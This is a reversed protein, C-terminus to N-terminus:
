ILREADANREFGDLGAGEILVVGPKAGKEFRGLDSWGFYEAGNVTAWTLLDAVPIEPAHRHITKLEELVSLTDNSALSDTGVVLKCGNKWLMSIDPLTNEIYLNAKPCLCFSIRNFHGASKLMDIDGQSTFTNHVLMLRSKSPFYHQVYEISSMGHPKDLFSLFGRRQFFNVLQGSLSYFMENESETEQSHISWLGHHTDSFESILRHLEAPVSYPAHPVISASLKKELALEYLQRGKQFTVEAQAPDLNFLEIFSHYRVPSHSKLEFTDPTNCIDGIAQTGSQYAAVSARKSVSVPVSVSRDTATAAANQRLQVLDEIFGTLQRHREIAGEMYSLELHCHSNIFGPCLIGNHHVADDAKSHLMELVTGADDLVLTIDRHLKGDPLLIFDATLKQMGCLDYFNVSRM